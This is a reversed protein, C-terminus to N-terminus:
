ISTNKEQQVIITDILKTKLDYTTRATAIITIAYRVNDPRRGMEFNLLYDICQAKSQIVFVM